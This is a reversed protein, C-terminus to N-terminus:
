GVVRASDFFARAVARERQWQRPTASWSLRVGDRDVMVFRWTGAPEGYPGTRARTYRWVLRDTGLRVGSIRRRERLGDAVEALSRRPAPTVQAYRQLSQRGPTLYLHCGPGARDISETFPVPPRYVVRVGHDTCTSTPDTDLAVSDTFAALEAETPDKGHPTTWSLRVGHTQLMVVDTDQGDCFCYFSLREGTLEGFVPVDSTYVVDELDDDGGQGVYPDVDEAKTTALTPLVGFIVGVGRFGAGTVRCASDDRTADAYGEPVRFSVALGTNGRPRLDSCRMALPDPSAAAFPEPAQTERAAVRESGTAASAAVAGSMLLLSAVVSLLRVAPRRRPPVLKTSTPDPRASDRSEM